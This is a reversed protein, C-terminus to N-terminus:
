NKAHIEWTDSSIARRQGMAKKGFRPEPFIPSTKSKYETEVM